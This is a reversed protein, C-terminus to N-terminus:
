LVSQLHPCQCDIPVPQTNIFGLPIISCELSRPTNTSLLILVPGGVSRWTNCLICLAVRLKALGLGLGASGVPLEGGDTLQSPTATLRRGVGEVWQWQSQSRGAAASTVEGDVWGLGGSRTGEVARLVVM